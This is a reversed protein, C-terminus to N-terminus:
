VVEISHGGRLFYIALLLMLAPFLFINFIGLVLTLQFVSIILMCVAFARMLGSLDRFRLLLAIALIFAAVAYLYLSVLGIILATNVLTDVSGTLLGLGLVIDVLVTAHFVGIMAAMIVLLVSALTGGMQDRSLRSLALYVAVELGGILVFLGDWGNLTMMDARLADLSLDGQLWYIPFLVALIIAAVGATKYTNTNM